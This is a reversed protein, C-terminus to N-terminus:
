HVSSTYGRIFSVESMKRPGLDESGLLLKVESSLYGRLLIGPGLTKIWYKNCENHMVPDNHRM